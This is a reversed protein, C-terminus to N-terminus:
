RYHHQPLLPNCGITEDARVIGMVNFRKTFGARVILANIVPKHTMKRMRLDDSSHFSGVYVLSGIRFYIM